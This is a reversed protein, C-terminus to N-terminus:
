AVDKRAQKFQEIARRGADPDAEAEAREREIREREARKTDADAQRQAAKAAAAEDAERQRHDRKAQKCAHCPTDVGQHEACRWPERIDTATAPSDSSVYGGGGVSSDIPYRTPDPAIRGRNAGSEPVGEPVRDPVRYMEAETPPEIEDDPPMGQCYECDPVNVNRSVHWRRHNGLAGGDAEANRKARLSAADPQYQNWQHFTWGTKLERWLGANVLEGADKKTAGLMKLVHTPIRGDTENAAAWSGATVWLGRARMSVAAWKEHGWLRDDVKFWAM